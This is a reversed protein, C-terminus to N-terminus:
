LSNIHIYHNLRKKLNPSEFSPTLAAARVANDAMHDLPEKVADDRIDRRLPANLCLFALMLSSANRHRKVAKFSYSSKKKM